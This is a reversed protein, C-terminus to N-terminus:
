PLSQLLFPFLARTIPANNGLLAQSVVTKCSNLTKLFPPMKDAKKQKEIGGVLLSGQGQKAKQPTQMQSVAAPLGM